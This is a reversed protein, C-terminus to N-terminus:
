DDQKAEEVIRYGTSNPRLRRRLITSRRGTKLDKASVWIVGIYVIKLQRGEHRKDCDEWVQGVKPEVYEIM